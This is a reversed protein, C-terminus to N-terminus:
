YHIARSCCRNPDSTGIMSSPMATRDRALVRRRTAAIAHRDPRWRRTAECLFEHFHAGLCITTSSSLGLGVRGRDVPGVVVPGPAFEPGRLPLAQHRAGAAQAGGRGRPGPGPTRPRPEDVVGLCGVQRPKPSSHSVDRKAGDVRGGRQLAGGRRVLGHGRRLVLAVPQRARLQERGDQGAAAREVQRRRRADVKVRRRAELLRDDAVRERPRRRAVRARRQVRRVLRERVPEPLQPGVEDDGRAVGHRPALGRGRPARPEEPVGPGAERYTPAVGLRPRRPARGVRRGDGDAVRGREHDDERAAGRAPGLAEHVAVPAVARADRPRHVVDERRARSM